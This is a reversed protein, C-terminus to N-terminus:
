GVLAVKNLIAKNEKEIADLEDRIIQVANEAHDERVELGGVVLRLMYIDDVITHIMYMKGSNNVRHLLQENIARGGNAVRFCVLAMRSPVVIEFRGDSELLRQAKKAYYISRRIQARMGKAGFRRLTFWIKLARFRRGLPIEWDKYDLQEQVADKLYEPTFALAYKLTEPHQIWLISGDFNIMFWKFMNVCVSDCKSLGKFWHRYEPCVASAGGYAGDVHVWVYPAVTRVVNVIDEVPDIATTSTTGVTPILFFPVLGVSLDSEIMAQVDQPHLGYNGKDAANRRTPIVRLLQIDLVACVKRVFSHTQDSSYVCLKAEKLKREVGELGSLARNRAAIMALLLADTASGQIIGGGGETSLFTKPFGLLKAMWDCVVQELETAAPAVAWSFGVVNVAASLFEGIISPEGAYCRFFANFNPSQWHTLGPLIINQVDEFISSWSEAEEPCDKPIKKKIDGPMVKSLVPYKFPRYATHAVSLDQRYQVILDTMAKAPIAISTPDAPDCRKTSNLASWRHQRDYFRWALIGVLCGMVFASGVALILLDMRSPLIEDGDKIQLFEHTLWWM